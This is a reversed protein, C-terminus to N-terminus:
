PESFPAIVHAVKVPQAVRLHGLQFGKERLGMALGTHVILPNQTTYDEDIAIAQTPAIRGHLIPRVLGKIASPLSPALFADEGPHKQLQGVLAAPSVGQHDIRRMQLCM